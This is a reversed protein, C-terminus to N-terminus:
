RVQIQVPSLAWVRPFGDQLSRRALRLYSSVDFGAERLFRLAGRSDLARIVDDGDGGFLDFLEAMPKPRPLHVVSFDDGLEAESVVAAIADDVGGLNDVLGLAWAQVGSWVRGGALPEVEPVNMNRSSAVLRLFRGYVDDIAEQIAAMEQGSWPRDISMAAASEDLSINEVHIGVRKLLTGFNLKMAFVGISGTITGPEAYVPRNLCSIWYGGSAALSGMSVVTPKVAALDMLARRVAESATASGGPSNIRVVVARINDDKRIRKIEKVTPGSVIGGSGSKGDVIEGNLHLVAVTPGQTRATTPAPNFLDGMMELFGVQQRKKRRPLVWEVPDDIRKTVAERMTGYPALHDVLTAELAAKATFFRQGQAARIDEPELNRGTSIMQVVHDNMSKLMRQYHAKLGESMTSRTYPEVAGKFEGVRSVSARVGMLDMADRFHMFSLAMSPLDLSGFDAMFIESCQSAIAFHTPGCNELWAYTPKDIFNRLHRRLESLQAQNMGLVPSSLDFLVADIEEDAAIEDLKACLQYFSKAEQPGGMLLSAPDFGGGTSHDEYVGSLRIIRVRTKDEYDEEDDEVPDDEVSSGATAGTALQHVPQALTSESLLLGFVGALFLIWLLPTSRHESFTLTPM